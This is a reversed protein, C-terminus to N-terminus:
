CLILTKARGAPNKPVQRDRLFSPMINVDDNQAGRFLTTRSQIWPVSARM